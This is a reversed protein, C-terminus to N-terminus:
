KLIDKDFTKYYKRICWTRIRGVFDKTAPFYKKYLEKYPVRDVNKLFAKRMWNMRPPIVLHISEKTAEEMSYERCFMKDKVLNYFKEGKPSNITIMSLGNNEPDLEKYKTGGFWDGISIDGIRDHRAFICKYCSPRQFINTTFGKNYIDEYASNTEKTGDEYEYTFQVPKWGASKDRYMTVVKKGKEAELEKIYKFFVKESPVGHCIVDATLLNEYDKGLYGYLGAIQCPTGTFFVLKGENLQQKAKKYADDVHSQLYKSNRFEEIGEQSTAMDHVVKDMVNGKVGFVTGGTSIIYSSILYGIGGSASKKLSEKDKDYCAVSKMGKRQTQVNDAGGLMPCVRECANCKICKEKNIVPYRFGESDLKMEICESPCVNLCAYCGCCKTRDTINIM